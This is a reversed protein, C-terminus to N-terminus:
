GQLDITQTGARLPLSRGGWVLEGAIGEPLAVTGRCAGAAFAFDVEIWGRPHPLRSRVRRLHGPAPAIRVRAFGPAAPRIGAITAHLHFLPHSGWAHCDSRAPEYMEYPTRLQTEDILAHWHSLLPLLREGCGCAHFAEFLYHMWYMPQAQALGPTALLADLCADKRGAPVGGTLLAIIQAHQSWASRDPHDAMLGKGADWCAASVGAVITAARRRCRAALEPEGAWEELEAARQLALAHLLNFTSSLGHSPDPSFITDLWEPATDIFVWGPPQRILGDADALVAVSDLNVRVGPLRDRVFAADDRWWAFDRVMMVWYLPFTSILQTGAYPYTSNTFGFGRRSWDFLEVCRRALGADGSIAYNILNHLRTDGVYLTQEWHPCDMFTEHACMQLGRVCFPIVREVAPDDCAFIAEPELPYRTERFALADVTLPQDATTITVLVLCGSRWWCATFDRQAGGDSVFSDRPGHAYKGVHEQRRGKHKSILSVPREFLAELWVMSVESGAGGSLRAQSYGCWYGGLDWLLSVTTHPPVTVAGGALVAQWAALGPHALHAAALPTEGDLGGPVLAILRGPRRVAAIQEPLPSPRLMWGARLGFWEARALPGCVVAPEVWTCAAFWREGHVTQYSGVLHAPREGPRDGFSWADSVDAVRWAGRGTDLVAAWAGEAALIFGGRWSMQVAPAHGGIWWAVAELVHEGPALTLDYSAFSWHEVDCRDPGRSFLEGDLCLEYRQDASLHIRITTPADVRFRNAFRLVAAQREGRAPHWIWAAGEITYRPRLNAECEPRVIPTALRSINSM